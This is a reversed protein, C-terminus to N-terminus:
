PKPPILTEKTSVDGSADTTIVKKSGPPPADFQPISENGMKQIYVQFGMVVGGLILSVTPNHTVGAIGANIVQLGSLIAQFASLTSPKM